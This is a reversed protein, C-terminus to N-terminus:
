FCLAKKKNVRFSKLNMAKQVALIGELHDYEHQILESLDDEFELECAKWSLDRYTVRAKKFRLLRVELGPFSMCDDWVEFQEELSFTLVPNIFGIALDGTELYIVQKFEGIQPAAIARGFGYKKQFEALTDKLDRIIKSAQELENVSLPTSVQYLREDGLLLIEKASM